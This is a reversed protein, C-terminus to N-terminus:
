PAFMASMAVFAVHEGLSNPCNPLDLGFCEDELVHLTQGASSEAVVEFVDANLKLVGFYSGHSPSPIPQLVQDPKLAVM